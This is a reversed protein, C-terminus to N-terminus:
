KANIDKFWKQNNKHNEFLKIHNFCTKNKM